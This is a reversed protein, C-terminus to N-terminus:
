TLPRGDELDGAVCVAGDPRLPEGPDIEQEGTLRDHQGLDVRDWPEGRDAQERGHRGLAAVREGADAAPDDLQREFAVSGTRGGPVSATVTSSRTGTITQCTPSLRKSASASPVRNASTGACGGASAAARGTM